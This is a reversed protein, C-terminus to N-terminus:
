QKPKCIKCPEYGDKKAVSLRLKKISKAKNLGRCDKSKHYKEGEYPAIYVMTAAAQVNSADFLMVAALAVCALNRMNLALKEM